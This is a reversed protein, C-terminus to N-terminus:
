GNGEAVSQAKAERRRQIGAKQMEAIDTIQDGFFGEPWNLINGYLDVQLPTIRSGAGGGDCFYVAVDENSIIGEAVRRQLRRLFHESHSEIIFQVNRDRGNERSKAAGIFLDALNQQVAPHLHLEPQEIIVSSDAPAYFSQVIVPLVQSVGFGVDPISVESSFATVKVRVRYERLGEAVPSVTFSHILGMNKLWTAVLKDFGLGPKRFGGSIKREAASLFASVWREGRSGVDEPTEGAWGYQRRPEERLPGLYSQRQLLNQFQFALDNLTEGNQYYASLEDPFGYFRTPPPLPWVRGTKRVDHFGITQLKYKGAKGDPLMAAEFGSDEPGCFSYHFQRCVAKFAKGSEFGITADFRIRKGTFTEKTVVDLIKLGSPQEWEISFVLDRKQEHQHILDSFTGLDVPTKEDGPHLVRKRDSSNATQKLMMLFQGISSKGSSNTGFFVTLPALRIEGTDQWAKFNQIRLKTLM